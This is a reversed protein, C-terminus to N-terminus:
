QATGKGVNMASTNRTLSEGLQRALAQPLEYSVKAGNPAVLALLINEHLADWHFEIEQAPTAVVGSVTASQPIYKSQVRDRWLHSSQAITMVDMSSLVVRSGGPEPLTSRLVFTEGEEELSIM